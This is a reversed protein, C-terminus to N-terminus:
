VTLPSITTDDYFEEGSSNSSKVVIIDEGLGVLDEENETEKSKEKLGFTKIKWDRIGQGLNHVQCYICHM